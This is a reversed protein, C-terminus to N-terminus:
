LSITIEAMHFPWFHVIVYLKDMFFMDYLSLYVTQPAMRPYFMSLDLHHFLDSSYLQVNVSLFSTKLHIAYPNWGKTKQM